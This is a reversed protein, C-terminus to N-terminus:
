LGAKVTMMNLYRCITLFRSCTLRKPFGDPRLIELGFSCFLPCGPARPRGYILLYSRPSQLTWSIVTTTVAQSSFPCFAAEYPRDIELFQSGPAILLRGFVVGDRSIGNQPTRNKRLRNWYEHLVSGLRDKVGLVPTTCFRGHRM